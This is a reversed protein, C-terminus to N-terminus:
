SVLTLFPIILYHAIECFVLSLFAAQDELFFPCSNPLQQRDLIHETHSEEKNRNIKRWLSVEESVM